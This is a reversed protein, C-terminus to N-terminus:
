ARLPRVGIPCANGPRLTELHAYDDDIVRRDHAGPEDGHKAFRSVDVDDCLRPVSAVGEAQHPQVRGVGHNEIEVERPHAADLHEGSRLARGDVGTTIM